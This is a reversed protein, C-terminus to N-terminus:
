RKKDGMKKNQYLKRMQPANVIEALVAVAPDKQKKLWNYFDIEGYEMKDFSEEKYMNKINYLPEVWLQTYEKLVPNNIHTDNKLNFLEKEFEENSKYPTSKFIMQENKYKIPRNLTYYM